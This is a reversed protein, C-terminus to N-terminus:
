DPLLAEAYEYWDVTGENTEEPDPGWAQRLADELDDRQAERDDPYHALAEDALDQNMLYSSETNELVNWTEWTTYNSWGQYTM